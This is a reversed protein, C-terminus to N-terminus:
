TLKIVYNIQHQVERPILLPAPIQIPCQLLKLELRGVKKYRIFKKNFNRNEHHGLQHNELM